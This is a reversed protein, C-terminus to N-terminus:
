NDFINEEKLKATDGKQLNNLQIKRKPKTSTTQIPNSM